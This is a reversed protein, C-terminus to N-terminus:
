SQTGQTSQSLFNNEHKTIWFDVLFPLYLHFPDFDQSHTSGLAVLELISSPLRDFFEADLGLDYLYLVDFLDAAISHHDGRGQHHISGHFHGPLNGGHFPDFVPESLPPFRAFIRGSNRM